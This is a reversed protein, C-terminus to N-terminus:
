RHNSPCFLMTRMACRRLNLTVSLAPLVFLTPVAHNTTARKDPLITEAFLPTLFDLELAPQGFAIRDLLDGSLTTVADTCNSPNDLAFQAMRHRDGDIQRLVAIENQVSGKQILAFSHKRHHISFSERQNMRSGFHCFARGM